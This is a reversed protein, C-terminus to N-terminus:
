KYINYVNFVILLSTAIQQLRDKIPKQIKQLPTVQLQVSEWVFCGCGITRNGETPNTETETKKETWHVSGAFVVHVLRPNDPPCMPFPSHGRATGNDSSGPATPNQNGGNEAGVAVQPHGAWAMGM